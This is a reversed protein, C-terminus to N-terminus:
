EFIQIDDDEAVFRSSTNSVELEYSNRMVSSFDITYPKKGHRKAIMEARKNIRKLIPEALLKAKERTIENSYYRSKIKAIAIRNRIAEDSIGSM